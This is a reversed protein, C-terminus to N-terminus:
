VLTVQSLVTVFYKGDEPKLMLCVAPIPQVERGFYFDFDRNVIMIWNRFVATTLNLRTLKASFQSSTVFARFDDQQARARLKPKM